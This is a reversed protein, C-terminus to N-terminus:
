GKKFREIRETLISHYLRMCYLQRELLRKDTLELTQFIPNSVTFTALKEVKNQLDDREKAVRLQYELDM